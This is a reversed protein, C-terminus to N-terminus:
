SVTITGVMGGADHLLCIYDYTGPADFKLSYTAVGAPNLYGIFGSSLLSTGDQVPGGAPFVAPGAVLRPAAAPDMPQSPDPPPMSAMMEPTLVTGDPLTPVFDAPREHGNLFTVTHPVGENANFWVVTDGRGVAIDGGMFKLLDLHGYPWNTGTRVFWTKTGDANPRSVPHDQEALLRDIQAQHADAMHTAAFDDVAAQSTIGASGSAVVEITGNMPLHFMCVYPYVGPRSFTVSFEQGRGLPSSNLYSTGDWPGNPPMPFFVQPNAMPPAAPDEPQPLLLDPRPMGGLFTITHPEDSDIRWTVTTGVAVRATTGGLAPDSVFDNMAVVGDGQGAILTLNPGQASASIPVSLALLLASALIPLIRL